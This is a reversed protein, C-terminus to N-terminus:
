TTMTMREHRQRYNVMCAAILMVILWIYNAPTTLAVELSRYQPLLAELPGYLIAYRETVLSGDKLSRPYLVTQTSYMYWFYSQLMLSGLLIRTTLVPLRSVMWVLMGITPVFLM